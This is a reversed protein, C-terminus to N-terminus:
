TVVIAAGPCFLEGVLDAVTAKGPNNYPKLDCFGGQTSQTPQAIGGVWCMCGLVVLVKM